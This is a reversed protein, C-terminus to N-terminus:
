NLLRLAQCAGTTKCLIIRLHRRQVGVDLSRCPLVLRRLGCPDHRPRSASVPADTCHIQATVCQCRHVACLQCRMGAARWPQAPGTLDVVDELLTRLPCRVRSLSQLCRRETVEPPRPRLPRGSRGRAEVLLEATPM